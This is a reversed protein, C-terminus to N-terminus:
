EGVTSGVGGTVSAVDGGVLQATGVGVETLGEAVLVQEAFEDVAQFLEVGFERGGGDRWRGVEFRGVRCRGAGSRPM